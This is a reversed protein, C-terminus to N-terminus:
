RFYELCAADNPTVQRSMMKATIRSGRMTYSTARCNAISLRTKIMNVVRSYECDHRKAFATAIEKLAKDFERHLLGDCSIILPVFFRNQEHCAAGHKRKKARAANELINMPKSDCYSKSNMNIVRTDFITFRGIGHMGRIQVDGRSNDIKAQVEEELETEEVTPTKAPKKSALAVERRRREAAHIMPELSVNAAGFAQILWHTFERTIFDHRAIVLGGTKCNLAHTSNNKKTCGDCTPNLNRPELALSLCTNDRFEEPTFACQNSDDPCM